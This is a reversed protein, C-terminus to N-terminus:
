TRRRLMTRRALAGIMVAAAAAALSSPEPIGHIAGATVPLPV